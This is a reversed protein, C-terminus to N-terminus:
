QTTEKQFDAETDNLWQQGCGAGLALGLLVETVQPGHFHGTKQFPWSTLSLARPGGGLWQDTRQGWSMVTSWSRRPPPPFPWGRAISLHRSEFDEMTQATLFHEIYDEGM